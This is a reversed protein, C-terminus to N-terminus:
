LGRPVLPGKHFRNNALIEISDAIRDKSRADFFLTVVISTVFLIAITIGILRDYQAGYVASSIAMITLGWSIVGFILGCMIFKRSNSDSYGIVSDSADNPNYRVALSEAHSIKDYLERQATESGGFYGYAIRTGERYQGSLEYRYRLLIKWLPGSDASFTKTLRCDTIRGEVTPWIKSQRSKTLSYFGWSILGLPILHMFVWLSVIAIKILADM